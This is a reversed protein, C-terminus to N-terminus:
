ERHEGKENRSIVAAFGAGHAKDVHRFVQRAYNFQAGEFWNAGPMKREALVTKHATPSELEFYDWVSQWFAALDTVSWQWLADYSDFALGRQLHLWDQYRRIQPIFAPANRTTMRWSSPRRAGRADPTGGM